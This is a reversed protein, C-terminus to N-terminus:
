PQTIDINHKKFIDNLEAYRDATNDAVSEGTTLKYRFFRDFSDIYKPPVGRWMKLTYSMLEDSYEPGYKERVELIAATWKYGPSQSGCVTRGSFSQPYYCEYIWAATEEDLAQPRSSANTRDVLLGNFIYASYASRLISPDDISDEPVILSSYYSPAGTSGGALIPGNPPSLGLPPIQPSLDVGLDTLYRYYENLELTIKKQRKATFLPSSKFPLHIKVENKWQIDSIFILGGACAAGLVVIVIMSAVIKEALGIKKSKIADHIIRLMLLGAGLVLFARGSVYWGYQALVFALGVFVVGVLWSVLEWTWFKQSLWRVAGWVVLFPSSAVGLVHDFRRGM